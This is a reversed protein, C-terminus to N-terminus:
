ITNINNFRKQSLCFLSTTKPYDIIKGTVSNDKNDWESSLGKAKIVVILFANFYKSSIIVGRLPFPFLLKLLLPGKIKNECYSLKNEIGFM